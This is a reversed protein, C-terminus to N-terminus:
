DVVENVEERASVAFTRNEVPVATVIGYVQEEVLDRDAQRAIELFLNGHM